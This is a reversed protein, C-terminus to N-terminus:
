GAAGIGNEIGIADVTLGVVKGVVVICGVLVGGTMGVAVVVGCGGSIGVM